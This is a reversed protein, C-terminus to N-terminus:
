LRGARVPDPTERAVSPISRGHGGGRDLGREGPRCRGEFAAPAGVRDLDQQGVVPGAREGAVVLERHARSDGLGVQQLVVQRLRGGREPTRGVDGLFRQRVRPERRQPAQVSAQGELAALLRAGDRQVRPRELVGLQRVIRPQNAQGVVFQGHAVLAHAVRADDALVEGLRRVGQVGGAVLAMQGEHVPQEPTSCPCSPRMCSAVVTAAAPRASAVGPRVGVVHQGAGRVVLGDQRQHRVPEVLGQGEGLAAHRQVPREAFPMAEGDREGREALHEHLDAVQVAGLVHQHPRELDALRHLEVDRGAGHEVRQRLDM